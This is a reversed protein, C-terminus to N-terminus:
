SIPCATVDKMFDPAQVRPIVAVDGLWLIHRDKRRHAKTWVTRRITLESGDANPQVEVEVFLDDTSRLTTAHSEDWRPFGDM